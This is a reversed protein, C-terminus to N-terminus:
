ALFPAAIALVQDKNLPEDFALPAPVASNMARVWSAHLAEVAVISAAAEKVPKGTILPGAGNYASVGTDELAMATDMFADQSAFAAGFTFKPRKVPTGGLDEITASLAEVHAAEHDRITEALQRFRRNEFDVKEVARRYFATELFELTLAFNLIAINSKKGAHSLEPLAMLGSATVVAGGGFVAAKKLFAARTSGLEEMIDATTTDTEVAVGNHVILKSM